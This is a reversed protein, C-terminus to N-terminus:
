RYLLIYLFLNNVLLIRHTFWLYNQFHLRQKCPVNTFRLCLCHQSSILTHHIDAPTTTSSPSGSIHDVSIPFRNLSHILPTIIPTPVGAERHNRVLRLLWSYSPSFRLTSITAGTLFLTHTLTHIPLIARYLPVTLTLRIPSNFQPHRSNAGYLLSSSAHTSCLDEWTPHNIGEPQAREILRSRYPMSLSTPSKFTFTITVTPTRLDLQYIITYNLFTLSLYESPSVHYFTTM